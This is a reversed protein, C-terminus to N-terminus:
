KELSLLDTSVELGRARGRLTMHVGDRDRRRCRLLRHLGDRKRVRRLLAVVRGPERGTSSKVDEAIM